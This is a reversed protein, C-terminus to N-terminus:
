TYIDEGWGEFNNNISFNIGDKSVILASKKIGDVNIVISDNYVVASTIKDRDVNNFKDKLDKVLVWDIGNNNSVWIEFYNIEKDISGGIM